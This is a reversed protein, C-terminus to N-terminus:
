SLLQRNREQVKLARILIQLHKIMIKKFEKQLERMTKTKEPGKFYGTDAFRYNKTKLTLGDAFPEQEGNPLLKSKIKVISDRKLPYLDALFCYHDAPNTLKLVQTVKMSRPDGRVFTEDYYEIYDGPSITQIEDALASEDDSSQNALLRDASGDSDVDSASISNDKPVTTSQKSKVENKEKSLINRNLNM